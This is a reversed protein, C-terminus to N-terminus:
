HRCIRNHLKLLLLLLKLKPGDRECGNKTMLYAKEKIDNLQRSDFARKHSCQSIMATLHSKGDEHRTKIPVMDKMELLDFM